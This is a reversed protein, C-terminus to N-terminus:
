TKVKEIENFAYGDWCIIDKLEPRPKAAPQSEPYGIALVVPVLLNDPISLTERVFQQRRATETHNDNQYMA